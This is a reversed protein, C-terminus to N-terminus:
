LMDKSDVYGAWFYMAYKQALASKYEPHPTREVFLNAIDTCSVAGTHPEGVIAIKDGM